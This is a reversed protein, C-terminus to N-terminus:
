AKAGFIATGGDRGDLVMMESLFPDSDSTQEVVWLLSPIREPSCGGARPRIARSLADEEGAAGSEKATPQYFAKAVYIAVQVEACRDGDERAVRLREGGLAWVQNGIRCDGEEIPIDPCEWKRRSLEAIHNM